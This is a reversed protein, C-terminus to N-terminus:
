PTTSVSLRHHCSTKVVTNMVTTVTATSNTMPKAKAVTICRMMKPRRVTRM